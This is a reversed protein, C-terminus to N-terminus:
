FTQWRAALAYKTHTFNHASLEVLELLECDDDGVGAIEGREFLERRTVGGRIRRQNELGRLHRFIM